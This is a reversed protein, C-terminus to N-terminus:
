VVTLSGDRVGVRLRKASLKGAAMLKRLFGALEETDRDLAGIEVDIRKVPGDLYLICGGYSPLNGYAIIHGDLARALKKVITGYSM